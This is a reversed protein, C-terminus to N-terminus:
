NKNGHMVVTIFYNYVKIIEETLIDTLVTFVPTKNRESVSIQELASHTFTHMCTGALQTIM